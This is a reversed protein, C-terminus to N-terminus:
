ARLVRARGALLGLAFGAFHAVLAVGPAATLMTVGAALVLLLAIRARGSLPLWRLVTDTVPNGALLYGVLGFVAGSAGLVATAGGVLGSVVVQAVGAAVGVTAFFVHYRWTTTVREVAFGVLLLVVANSVLHPVSAHAYVSALLTWPRVSIPPALVFLGFALRQSVFGVAQQVAFVVLFVALTQVTPSGVLWGSSESSEREATESDGHRYSV